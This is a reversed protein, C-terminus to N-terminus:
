FVEKSFSFTKLKSYSFKEKYKKCLDDFEANSILSDLSYNDNLFDLKIPNYQLVNLRILKKRGM